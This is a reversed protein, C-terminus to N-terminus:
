IERCRLHPFVATLIRDDAFLSFLVSRHRCDPRPLSPLSPSSTADSNEGQSIGDNFSAATYVSSFVVAGTARSQVGREFGHGDGSGSFIGTVLM